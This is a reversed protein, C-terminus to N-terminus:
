FSVQKFFPDGSGHLCIVGVKYGKAALQNAIITTVRETGGATHLSNIFFLTKM